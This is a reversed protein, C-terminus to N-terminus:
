SAAVIALLAGAEVSQGERVLVETVVGDRTARLENEMKMAEVVVISQRPQVTDGPRALVRVIKGPMPALIKQPGSAGAVGDAKSGWKRRSQLAASVPLPGVGVIVHGHVPDTALSLERSEVVGGNGDSMLLSLVHGGVPAADVVWERGDVSVVFRDDRRNVVVQRIRGNVQVEYQM